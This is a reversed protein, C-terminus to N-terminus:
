ECLPSMQGPFFAMWGRRTFFGWRRVRRGVLVLSWAGDTEVRHRWKAPRYLLTGAPRYRTHGGWLHETYGGALILTVFRWPHDHLCPDVDGRIFEHLYLSFWPSKVLRYRVMYVDTSDRGIELKDFRALLRRFLNM